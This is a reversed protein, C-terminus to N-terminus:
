RDLEDKVTKMIAYIEKFDSEITRLGYGLGEAIQKQTLGARYHLDVCSKLRDARKHEGLKELFLDLAAADLASEVVTIEPGPPAVRQATSYKNRKHRWDTRGLSYATNKGIRVMFTCPNAGSEAEYRRFSGYIQKLTEQRVDEFESPRDTLKWLEKDIQPMCRLILAALADGSGSKAARICARRESEDDLDWETPLPCGSLQRGPPVGQAVTADDRSPTALCM